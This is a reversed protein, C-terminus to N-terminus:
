REAGIPEDTPEDTPHDPELTITVADEPRTDDPGPGRSTITRRRRGWRRMGALAALAAACAVLLLWWPREDGPEVAAVAVGSGDAAATTTPATSPSVPSPAPRDAATPAAAITTPTTTPPPALTEPVFPASGVYFWSPGLNGLPKTCDPGCYGVLYWGDAVKPLVFTVEARVRLDDVRTVVLRGVARDDVHLGPQVSTPSSDPAVPRIFVTYPGFWDRDLKDVLASLHVPEGPRAFERDPLLQVGGGAGAPGGAIGLAVTAAVAALVVVAITRRV